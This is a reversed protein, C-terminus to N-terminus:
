LRDKLPEYVSAQAMQTGRGRLISMKQPFTRKVVAALTGGSTGADDGGGGEPGLDAKIPAENKM